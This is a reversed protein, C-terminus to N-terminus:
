RVFFVVGFIIVIVSVELWTIGTSQVIRVTRNYIREFIDM